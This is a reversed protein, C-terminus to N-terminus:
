YAPVFPLEIPDTKTNETKDNESSTSDTGSTNDTGSTDKDAADSSAAATSEPVISVPPLESNINNYQADSANEQVNKKEGTKQSEGTTQSEGAPIMHADRGDDYEQGSESQLKQSNDTSINNKNKGCASLPLTMLTIIMIIFTINRKSM